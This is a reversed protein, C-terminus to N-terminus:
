HSSNDGDQPNSAEARWAESAELSFGDMHDSFYDGTVNAPQKVFAEM